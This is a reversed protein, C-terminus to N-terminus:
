NCHFCKFGAKSGGVVLAHNKTYFSFRPVYLDICGAHNLYESPPMLNSELWVGGTIQNNNNSNLTGLDTEFRMFMSYGLGQCMQKITYISKDNFGHRKLFREVHRKTSASCTSAGNAYIYTVDDSYSAIVCVPTCFSILEYVKLNSPNNCALYREYANCGDVGKVAKCTWELSPVYNCPKTM